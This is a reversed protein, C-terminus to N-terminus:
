DEAINIFQGATLRNAEKWLDQIRPRGLLTNTTRLALERLGGTVPGALPQLQPPLAGAVQTSIDTESYLTDVMYNSVQSRVDSNQLLQDSTDAWNDANLLQRDAFLALSSLVLLITGLVLMARVTYRRGRPLVPLPDRAM